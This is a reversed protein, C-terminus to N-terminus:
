MWKADAAAAAAVETEEVEMDELKVGGDNKGAQKALQATAESLQMNWAKEAEEFSRLVGQREELQKEFVAVLNVLYGSWSHEYAMRDKQIKSLERKAEQKKAVMQHLLKGEFRANDETYQEVMARLGDPLDEKDAVHAM